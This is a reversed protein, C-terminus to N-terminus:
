EVVEVKSMVIKNKLREVQLIDGKKLALKEIISKPIGASYSDFNTKRVTVLPIM